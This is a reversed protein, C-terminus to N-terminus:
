PASTARIASPPALPLAPLLAQADSDAALLVGFRWIYTGAISATTGYGSSVSIRCGGLMDRAAGFSFALGSSPVQAAQLRVFLLNAGTACEDPAIITVGYDRVSNVSQWTGDRRYALAFTLPEDAPISLAGMVTGDQTLFRMQLLLPENVLWASDGIPGQFEPGDCQLELCTSGVAFTSRSPLTGQAIGSTNAAFDLRATLPQTARAYSIAGSADLGTAYYEGVPVTAEKPPFQVALERLTDLARAAVTPPLSTGSEDIVIDLHGDGGTIRCPSTAQYATGGETSAGIAFITCTARPFPPADLTLTNPGPVLTSFSIPPAGRLRQGNLTVTGFSVNSFINFPGPTWRAGSSGQRQPAATPRTAALPWHPLPLAGRLLVGLVTVLAALVLAGRALRRRRPARAALADELEISALGDHSPSDDLPLVPPKEM